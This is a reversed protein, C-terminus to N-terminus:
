ILVMHNPPMPLNVTTFITEHDDNQLQCCYCRYVLRVANSKVIQNFILDCYYNM